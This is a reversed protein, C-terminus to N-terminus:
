EGFKIKIKKKKTEEAADEVDDSVDESVEKVGEKIKEFGKKESCSLVAVSLLFLLGVKIIISKM